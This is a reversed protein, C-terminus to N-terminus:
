YEVVKAATNSCDSHVDLWLLICFFKPITSIAIRTPQEIDAVEATSTQGSVDLHKPPYRNFYYLIVREM